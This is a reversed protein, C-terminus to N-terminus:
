GGGPSIPISRVDVNLWLDVGDRVVPPRELLSTFFAIMRERYAMPGVVVTRIQDHSVDDLIEKREKPALTPVDGGQQIKIMTDQLASQQPLFVFKGSSDAGESYGEPMKFRMHALAQWLMPTDNNTDRAFPALLAISGNPILEVADSTFFRPIEAKSAPFHLKPVVPVLVIILVAVLAAPHPRRARWADDVFVAVFLGCFLFVYVMLRKPELNNVVPLEAIRAFPLRQPLEQGAVHLHPGMSLLAVAGALLGTVRILPRSWRRAVVVVAFLILPFGLYAHQENICCSDSFKQTVTDAWHPKLQQVSTPVVFGVLDSAGIDPGWLPARSHVSRSSFFQVSLPIATLVLFAALAIGLARAAYGAKARVVRPHLAVLLVLGMGSVLAASALLEENLLLQAATACGLLVGARVGSGPQRVLVDDLLLFLLPLLFATTVHPHGLAHAVVYPSFGFLLGGLVAAVETGVYRRIMLYACWASLAFDLTILVNYSFTPGLTMTLPSLVIGALPMLADWMLDIGIPFNIHHTFLPNQGHAIAWPVWKLYWMFQPPDGPTGAWTDRPSKWAGALYLLALLVFGLLVSLETRRGSVWARARPALM